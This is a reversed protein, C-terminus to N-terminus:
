WVQTIPLNKYYGDKYIAHGLPFPLDMFSIRHFDLVSKMDEYLLDDYVGEINMNYETIVDKSFCYMERESFGATKEFFYQPNKNKDGLYAAVFQEPKENLIYLFLNDYIHPLANQDAIREASKFYVDIVRSEFNLHHEKIIFDLQPGDRFSLQNM